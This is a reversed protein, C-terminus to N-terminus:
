HMVVGAQEMATLTERISQPDYCRLVKKLHPQLLDLQTNLVTQKIEPILAAPMSLERFGMAILLRTLRIDGAMGGCISVPIDAKVATSIISHMLQIIAPHLDDYL